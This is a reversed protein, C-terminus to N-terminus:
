GLIGGKDLRLARVVVACRRAHSALSALAHAAGLRTRLPLRKTVAPHLHRVRPPQTPRVVVFFSPISLYINPAILSLM